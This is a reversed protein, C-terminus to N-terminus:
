YRHVFLSESGDVQRLYQLNDCNAIRGLLSQLAGERVIRAAAQNVDERSRKQNQKKPQQKKDRSAQSQRDSYTLKRNKPM